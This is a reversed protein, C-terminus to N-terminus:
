IESNKYVNKRSKLEMEYIEYADFAKNNKARIMENKLESNTMSTVIMHLKNMFHVHDNNEPVVSNITLVKPKRDAKWLKHLKDVLKQQKEKEEDPLPVDDTDDVIFENKKEYQAAKIDLYAPVFLNFVIESDFRGKNSGLEGRRGMKLMLLIDELTEYKMKDILDDALVYAQMPTMNESYKFSRATNLISTRVVAILDNKSISKEVNLISQIKKCELTESLVLSSEKELILMSRQNINEKPISNFDNLWHTSTVIENSNNKKIIENSM